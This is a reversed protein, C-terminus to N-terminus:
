PSSCPTGGSPLGLDQRLRHAAAATSQNHAILQNDAAIFATLSTAAAMTQATSQDAVLADVLATADAAIPAPWDLARLGSVLTDLSGAYATSARALDELRPASQSLAANFTCTATNSSAVLSLYAAAIPSPPSAAPSSSQTAPGPASCAALVLAGVLLASAARQM